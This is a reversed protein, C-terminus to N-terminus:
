TAAHLIHTYSEHHPLSDYNLVDGEIFKIDSGNLDIKFEKLFLQPKRSLITIELKENQNKAWYKILSKGFFGTGGTVLLKIPAM